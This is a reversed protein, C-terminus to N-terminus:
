SANNNSGQTNQSMPYNPRPYTPVKPIQLQLIEPKPIEPKPEKPHFWVPCYIVNHRPDKRRMQSVSKEITLRVFVWLQSGWQNASDLRSFLIHVINLANQFSSVTTNWGEGEGEGEGGGGCVCVNNKELNKNHNEDYHTIKPLTSWCKEFINFIVARFIKTIWKFNM